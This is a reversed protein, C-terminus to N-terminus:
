EKFIKTKKLSNISEKDIISKSKLDYRLSSINDNINSNSDNTKVNADIQINRAQAAANSLQLSKVFLGTQKISNLSQLIGNHERIKRSFFWNLSIISSSAIILFLFNVIPKKSAIGSASGNSNALKSGAKILAFFLFYFIITAVLMLSKNLIENIWKKRKIDGEGVAISEGIPFALFLVFIEIIKIIYSSFFWIMMICGILSGGIQVFFNVDTSLVTINKDTLSFNPGLNENPINNNSFYYQSINDALNFQFGGKGSAVGFIAIIISSLILTFGIFFLPFLIIIVFFKLSDKSLSIIQSKINIKNSAFVMILKIIFFTMLLIVAMTAFFAYTLLASKQGTVSGNGFFSDYLNLGLLKKILEELADVIIM